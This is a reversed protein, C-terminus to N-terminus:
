SSLVASPLSALYQKLEPGWGSHWWFVDPTRTTALDAKLNTFYRKPDKQEYEITIEPHKNQFQTKLPNFVKPDWFGIVKLFVPKPERKTQFLVELGFFIVSFAVLFVLVPIIFKLATKM